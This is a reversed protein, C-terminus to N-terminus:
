DHAPQNGSGNSSAGDSADDATAKGEDAADASQEQGDAADASQEQGDTAHPATDGSNPASAPPGGRNEHASDRGGSEVRGDSAVRSIEKGKDAGDATTNKATDSVRKGHDAAPPLDDDAPTEDSGGRDGHDDADEGPGQGSRDGHDDAGEGAPVSIGVTGLWTSIREQAAGPFVGAAAAGFGGTLLMGTGIASAVASRASVLRTRRARDPSARFAALAETEGLLPGVTEIPETAAALLARVRPDLTPDESSRSNRTM